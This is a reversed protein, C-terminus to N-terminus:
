RRLILRALSSDEPDFYGPSVAIFLAPILSAKFPRFTRFTSGAAMSPIAWPRGRSPATEVGPRTPRAAATQYFAEKPKRIGLRTPNSQSTPSRILDFGLDAHEASHLSRTFLGAVILLSLSGAVQVAVMVNRLRQRRSTVSRGSDHLASNLGARSARLAPAIGVVLSSLFAAVVAGAFVLWNFRFDFSVPLATPIHIATLLRTTVLGIGIGAACGLFALLLSETLL